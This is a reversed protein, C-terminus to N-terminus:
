SYVASEVLVRHLFRQTPLSLRTNLTDHGLEYSCLLSVINSVHLSFYNIPHTVTDSIESM